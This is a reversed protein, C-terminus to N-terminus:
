WVISVDFMFLEVVGILVMSIFLRIMVNFMESLFIVIEMMEVKVIM